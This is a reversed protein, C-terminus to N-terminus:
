PEITLLFRVSGKKGIRHGLVKEVAYVEEDGDEDGPEDDDDDIVVPADKNSREVKATLNSDKSTSESRARAPGAESEVDAEEGPAIAPQDIQM